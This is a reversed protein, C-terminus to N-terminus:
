FSPGITLYWSNQDLSPSYGYGIYVNGLVTDAAWFLSASNVRSWPNVMFPDNIRGSELSLGAYMGTGGWIIYTGHFTDGSQTGTIRAYVKEGSATTITLEDRLTGVSDDWVWIGEGVIDCSDPHSFNGNGTFSSRIDKYKMSEVKYTHTSNVVYTATYSGKFPLEEGKDTKGLATGSLSMVLVLFLGILFFKIFSKNKEM